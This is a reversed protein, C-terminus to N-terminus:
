AKQSSRSIGYVLLRLHVTKSINIKRLYRALNKGCSGTVLFKHENTHASSVLKFSRSYGFHSRTPRENEMIVAKNGLKALFILFVTSKRLNLIKFSDSRRFQRLNNTEQSDGWGLGGPECRSYKPPLKFFFTIESLKWPLIPEFCLFVCVM